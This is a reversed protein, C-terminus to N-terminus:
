SRNPLLGMKREIHNLRSSIQLILAVLKDTTNTEQTEKKKGKIRKDKRQADTKVNKSPGGHKISAPPTTSLFSLTSISPTSIHDINPLSNNTIHQIEEM